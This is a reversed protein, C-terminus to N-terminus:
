SGFKLFAETSFNQLPPAAAAMNVIMLLPYLIVYLLMPITDSM